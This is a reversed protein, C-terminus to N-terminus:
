RTLRSPRCQGSPLATLKVEFNVSAFTAASFTLTTDDQRAATWGAPLETPTEWAVHDIASKWRLDPAVAAPKAEALQLTAQQLRIFRVVGLVHGKGRITLRGLQLWAKIDASVQAPNANLWRLVVRPAAIRIAALQSPPAPVSDTSSGGVTKLLIEGPAAAIRLSRPAPFSDLQLEDPAAPPSPAASTALDGAWLEIADTFLEVARPAFTAAGPATAPAVSSDTRTKLRENADQLAAVTQEAVRRDHEAQSLGSVASSLKASADALQASLTQIRRRLESIEATQRALAADRLSPTGAPLTDPSTHSEADPRPTPETAAPRSEATARSDPPPNPFRSLYWVTGAAVLIPWVAAVIRLSGRQGSTAPRSASARDGAAPRSAAVQAARDNKPGPDDPALGLDTILVDQEDPAITDQSSGAELDAADGPPDPPDAVSLDNQDGAVSSLAQDAPHTTDTTAGPAIGYSAPRTSRATPGPSPSPDVGTTENESEVATGNRAAFVYPSDAVLPLSQTLDILLGAGGQRRAEDAARTGAVCCRWSCGVGAPLDTFYTNFTVQWRLTPPLLNVAEDILPLAALTPPYIIWAVKAPDSVFTQALFGAWGADGTASAWAQCIRASATGAPIDPGEDFLMPTGIWSARMVGPRTMVWVPGAEAQESPEVVVHHALRNSRRSYDFEANCVRSLVSLVRGGIMVRYHGWSVPNNQAGAEGPPILWRYGCLLTLREEAAPPMGRTMAVTCFGSAGPHVGAPASTNILEASM